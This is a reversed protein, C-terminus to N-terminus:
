NDIVPEVLEVVNRDPDRVFLGRAGHPYVVPGGSIAISSKALLRQAADLDNVVLAVHTYGAHKVDIDMLVNESSASAANLILNLEIGSPHRMIAIPESGLPGASFEFGLFEYFVRSRALEAVRLGYHAFGTIPFNQPTHM